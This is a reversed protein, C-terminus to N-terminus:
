LTIIEDPVTDCFNLKEFGKKKHERQIIQPLVTSKRSTISHLRTYKKFTNGDTPLRDIHSCLMVDWFIVTEVRCSVLGAM